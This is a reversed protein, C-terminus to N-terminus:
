HLTADNELKVTRAILDKAIKEEQSSGKGIVENRLANRIEELKALDEKTHEGNIVRIQIDDITKSDATVRNLTEKAAQAEASEMIDKKIVDHGFQEKNNDKSEQTNPIKEINKM